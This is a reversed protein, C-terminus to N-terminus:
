PQPTPTPVFRSWRFNELASPRDPCMDEYLDFFLFRGGAGLRLVYKGPTEDPLPSCNWGDVFTLLTGDLNFKGAHVLGELNGHAAIYAGEPSLSIFLNGRDPDSRTWIGYIEDPVFDATPIPPLPTPAPTNTTTATAPPLTPSGTPTVTVQRTPTPSTRVPTDVPTVTAISNSCAATFILMFLLKYRKSHLAM